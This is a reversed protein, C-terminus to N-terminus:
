NDLREADMDLMKKTVKAAFLSDMEAMIAASEKPRMSLLIQSVAELDASLTELIEAANKPKMNRYIEAKESISTSYQLQEVVQRYINEANAPNIGEYYKKYDELDPAAEAFVVNKDFEKQREEFEEQTKEFVKLRNIEAELEEINDAREPDDYEDTLLESLIEELEDIRKNAEGINDYGYGYEKALQKDSVDPLILNLIPVDKLVPRLVGSGFGGVDLKILLVFIALWLVSILIAVLITLFKKDNENDRVPKKEKRAM